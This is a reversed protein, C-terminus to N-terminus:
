LHLYLDIVNILPRQAVKGMTFTVQTVDIVCKAIMKGAFHLFSFTVFSLTPEITTVCTEHFPCQQGGRLHSQTPQLYYKTSCQLFSTKNDTKTICTM